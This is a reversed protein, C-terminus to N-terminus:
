GEGPLGAHDLTSLRIPHPKRYVCHAYSKREGSMSRLSPIPREFPDRNFPQISFGFAKRQRRSGFSAAGKSFCLRSFDRASSSRRLTRFPDNAVSGNLAWASWHGSKDLLPC